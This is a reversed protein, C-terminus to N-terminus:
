RRRIIHKNQEYRTFDKLLAEPYVPKLIDDFFSKRLPDDKWIHARPLIFLVRPKEITGEIKVIREIIQQNEPGKGTELTQAVAQDFILALSLGVLAAIPFLRNVLM